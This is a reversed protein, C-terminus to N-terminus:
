ICRRAETCNVMSQNPQSLDLKIRLANLNFVETHTGEIRKRASSLNLFHM